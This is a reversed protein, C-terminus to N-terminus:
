LKFISLYPEQMKARLRHKYSRVTTDTVGMCISQTYTSFGLRHLLLYVIDSDSLHSTHQKLDEIVPRFLSFLDHQLMTTREATFSDFGRARSHHINSLQENWDTQMFQNICASLQEEFLLTDGQRRKRSRQRLFYLASLLAALMVGVIICVNRRQAEEKQRIGEDYNRLVDAMRLRDVSHAITGKVDAYHQMHNYASEYNGALSDLSALASAASAELYINGETARCLNLYHFASDYEGLASFAQGKLYYPFIKEKGERISEALSAFHLAREANGKRRTLISLQEAALATGTPNHISQSLSLLTTYDDYSQSYEGQAMECKAIGELPMIMRLSDGVAVAADYAQRYWEASEAFLHQSFLHDAINQSTRRLMVKDHRRRFAEAAPLYAEVARFDDGLDRYVSGLYFQALARLEKDRGPHSFYDVATLILSDSTHPILCKDAAQTLLLARLAADGESLATGDIASLEDLARSPEASIYTRIDSLQRHVDSHTKGTTPLLALCLAPLLFLLRKM